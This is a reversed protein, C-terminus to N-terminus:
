SESLTEIVSRLTLPPISGHWKREEEEAFTRMSTLSAVLFGLEERSTDFVEWWETEPLKLGLQRAALYICATALSTPQHTLYVLQPSLLACNLHAFAQAAVPKGKAQQFAGLTQLYNICLTHPIAVHVQYGLTRLIIAEVDMCRKRRTQYSDESTLTVYLSENSSPSSPYLFARPHALLYATVLLLRRPTQPDASIKAALYLSATAVDQNTAAM